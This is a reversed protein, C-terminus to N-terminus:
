ENDEDEKDVAEGLVEDLTITHNLEASSEEYLSTKEEELVPEESIDLVEPQEADTKLDEAIAELKEAVREKAIGLIPDLGEKREERIEEIREAIKQRNEDLIEDIEDIREEVVEARNIIEQGILAAEKESKETEIGFEKLKEQLKFDNYEVYILYFAIGFLSLIWLVLFVLKSGSTIFSIILFVLPLFINVKIGVRIRKQNEEHLSTEYDLFKEYMEEYEHYEIKKTSDSM